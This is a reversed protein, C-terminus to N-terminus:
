CRRVWPPAASTCYRGRILCGLMKAVFAITAPEAEADLRSILREGDRLAEEVRHERLLTHARHAVAYTVRRRLEPEAAADFRDVIETDIALAADRRELGIM